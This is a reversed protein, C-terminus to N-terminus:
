LKIQLIELDVFEKIKQFFCDVLICPLGVRGATNGFALVIM